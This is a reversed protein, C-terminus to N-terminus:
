QNIFLKSCVLSPEFFPLRIFMVMSHQVSGGILDSHITLSIMRDKIIGAVFPHITAANSIYFSHLAQGRFLTKYIKGTSCLQRCVVKAHRHSGIRKLVALRTVLRIRIFNM